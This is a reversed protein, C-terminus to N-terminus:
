NPGASESGSSPKNRHFNKLLVQKPAKPSKFAQSSKLCVPSQNYHSFETRLISTLWSSELHIGLTLNLDRPFPPSYLPILLQLWHLPLVARYCSLHCCEGMSVTQPFSPIRAILARGNEHDLSFSPMRAIPQQPNRFSFTKRKLPQHVEWSTFQYSSLGLEVMAQDKTLFAQICDHFFVRFSLFSITLLELLYFSSELKRERVQCCEPCKSWGYLATPSGPDKAVKGEGSVQFLSKNRHLHRQEGWYAQWAPHIKNLFSHNQRDSYKISFLGQRRFSKFLSSQFGVFVM